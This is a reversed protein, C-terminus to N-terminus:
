FNYQIGAFLTDGRPGEILSHEYEVVFKFAEDMAIETGVGFVFDHDSKDVDLATIKEWEWEYGVKGFVGLTETLEYTYVLDIASTYYRGKVDEVDGNGKTEKIENRSYSFDYEVAFGSGIRYGFDIGYGYDMDGDLLSEEHNVSDGFIMMGKAVVYFPSEATEVAETEVAEAVPEIDGGAQVQTLLQAALLASLVTKKM